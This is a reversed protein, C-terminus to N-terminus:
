PEGAVTKGEHLFRGTQLATVLDMADFLGDGTWDGDSWAAAEGTRYKDSQLIQALDLQDFRGDDNADGALRQFFETHGPTPSSSIWSTPFLGYDERGARSLSNGAGLTESPWPSTTLYNVQDEILLPVETPHDLLASDPRMLQVHAGGNRLIDRSRPNKSDKMTGFLEDSLSMGLTFRFVNAKNGGTATTPDYNLIVMSDNAALRHGEPFEYHVDGALRWNTLDVEDDTVNTIEIFELDRARIAGAGDPDIPDVYLESIIVDPVKPPSNPEGLTTSNLPIFDDSATPWRGLSVGSGAPGYRALDVFQIPRGSSDASVILIEGGHIGDLEIGMDDQSLVLYGFAELTTETTIQSKFFNDTSDSIYWGNVDVAHVSDNFLEITDARPLTTNALIENVLVRSTREGATGPSGGFEVSDRWDTADSSNRSINM